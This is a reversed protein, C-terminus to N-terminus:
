RQPPPSASLNPSLKRVKPDSWNGVVEYEYTFLKEIPDRMMKQALYTVVGAAPNMIGLLPGLAVGIAVTDSLTPQVRVHLAQTEAALDVSGTMFVKAAPGVIALDETLMTGRNIKMSGSITDFAFGESFV